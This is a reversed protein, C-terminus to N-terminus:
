PRVESMKCTPCIMTKMMQRACIAHQCVYGHVSSARLVFGTKLTIASCYTRTWKDVLRVAVGVVLRGTGSNASVAMARGELALQREFALNLEKRERGVQSVAMNESM